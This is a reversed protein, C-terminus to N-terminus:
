AHNSTLKEVPLGIILGVWSASLLVNSMANILFYFGFVVNIVYIHTTKALTRDHTVADSKSVRFHGPISAMLPLISGSIFGNTFGFFLSRFFM